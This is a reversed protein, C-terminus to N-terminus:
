STWLHGLLFIAYDQVDSVFLRFAEIDVNKEYSDLVAGNALESSFGDHVIGTHEACVRLLPEAMQQSSFGQIPYSCRLTFSYVRALENWLKELQIAGETNGEAWLLAVMEGFTVVGVGRTVLPGLLVRFLPEWSKRFACLILDGMSWSNRCFNPQRWRSTDARLQQKAQLDIGQSKLKHALGDIHALTAVIIASCGSSLASGIYNNLEHLLVGDEGYFQVTHVHENPFTFAGVISM